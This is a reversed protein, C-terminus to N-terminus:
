QKKKKQQYYERVTLGILVVGIVLLIAIAFVYIANDPSTLTSLFVRVMGRGMGSGGGIGKLAGGFIGSL